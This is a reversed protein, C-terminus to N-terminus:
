TEAPPPPLRLDPPGDPLFEGAYTRRLIDEVAAGQALAESVLAPDVFTGIPDARFPDTGMFATSKSWDGFRDIQLELSNGDPDAYYYSLTMGHDLCVHPLVGHDRLRRYTADLDELADYEYATHHIGNHVIRDPDDHFDPHALLAMRHNAADNTMWAGEPGAFVPELGIALGYWDVMEEIRSTKLTVHHLQPSMAHSM